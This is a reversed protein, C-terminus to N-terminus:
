GDHMELIIKRKQEDTLKDCIAIFYFLYVYLFM